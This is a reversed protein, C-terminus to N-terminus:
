RGRHLDLVGPDTRQRPQSVRAGPPNAVPAGEVPPAARRGPAAPLTVTFMTRGPAGDVEITGGHATVVAHVIALGLGTSSGAARNRSADGRTFRQFLRSRLPEPIGPGDDEVRVTVATGTSRVSVVVTSGAPTHVRANSLLNALVQRLRPEDGVVLAPGSGHDPEADASGSDASGSDDHDLELRWAHDPGAAHADAVADVALASLDVEARELDRGADLRALLLMDEVLGTMRKTESEVRAMARLADDPVAEPLRRVLEAYGRISALPTRLEHSADAVFQRVQTESEHRSALAREVHGLMRNLAAGVQGVETSPDTDGVPVREALLVEGRDLPLEAVRTATAAVRTLPRLERRIFVTGGLGALALGVVAVGVEVAVYKEVTATTSATPLGTVVLTGATGTAGIVRYSGLGAIEVTRPVGDAPTAALAGAQTPTLRQFEGSENLYGANVVGNSVDLDLTGVDQGPIRLGFPRAPPAPEAATSGTPATGAAPGTLSPAATPAPVGAVFARSPAHAARQNASGLRTDIQAVLSGHLALTSVLGMTGAFAALLGILGAVIRRRLTRRARPRRGATATETV